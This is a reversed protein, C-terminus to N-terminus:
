KIKKYKTLCCNGLNFEIGDKVLVHGFQILTDPFNDLWM